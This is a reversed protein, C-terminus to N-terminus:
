GWNTGWSNKIKWSKDDAGVLLVGHNVNKGCIRLIGSSYLSWTSADVGVSVPRRRLATLLSNCDKAVDVYGSIKFRGSNKKCTCSRGTYPYDAGTNLGNDKVYSFVNNM